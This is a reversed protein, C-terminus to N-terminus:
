YEGIYWDAGPPLKSTPVLERRQRTHTSKEDRWREEVYVLTIAEEREISIVMKYDEVADDRVVAINLIPAEKNMAKNLHIPSALTLM